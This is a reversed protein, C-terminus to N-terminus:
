SALSKKNFHDPLKLKRVNETYTGSKVAYEPICLAFM